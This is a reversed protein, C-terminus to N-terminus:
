QASAKAAKRAAKMSVRLGDIVDDDSVIEVSDGDIGNTDVKLQLSEMKASLKDEDKIPLISVHDGSYDGELADWETHGQMIGTGTNARRIQIHCLGYAEWQLGGGPKREILDVLPLNKIVLYKM